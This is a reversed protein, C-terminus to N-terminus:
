TNTQLLHNNSENLKTIEEKLKTIEDRLSQDSDKHLDQLRANEEKLKTIEDKLSQDADKRLEELGQLRGNEEKLKAIEEMWGKESVQSVQSESREERGSEVTNIRERGEGGKMHEEIKYLSSSREREKMALQKDFEELEHILRDNEIIVGKYEEKAQELEDELEAIKGILSESQRRWEMANNENYEVSEQNRLEM